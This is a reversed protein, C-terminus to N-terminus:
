DEQAARIEAIREADVVERGDAEFFREMAIVEDPDGDAPTRGNEYKSVTYTERWTGATGTTTM